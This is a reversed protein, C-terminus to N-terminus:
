PVKSHSKQLLANRKNELIKYFNPSPEIKDEAAKVGKFAEICIRVFAAESIGNEKAESKVYERLVRTLGVALKNTELKEGHKKILNGM